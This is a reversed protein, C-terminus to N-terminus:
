RSRWWAFEEGLQLIIPVSCLVVFPLYGWWFDITTVYPYYEFGMIAIIICVFSTIGSALIVVLPLADRATLRMRRYSTRKRSGYGRAMMSNATILSKEMGWEMLNSSLVSAYVLQQKKSRKKNQGEAGTPYFTRQAKDVLRAQSLLEPIFVTIRAIMMGITPSVRAFLAIVGQMSSLKGLVNFWLIVNALMLGMCFGYALSEVTIPSQIFGLDLTFIVTLGRGGLVSNFLMVIVIILLVWWSGRLFSKIGSVAISYSVAAVFSMCQFVPHVSALSLVIMLMFFCFAVSPHYNKIAGM